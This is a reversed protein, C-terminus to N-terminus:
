NNSQNGNMFTVFQDPSRGPWNRQAPATPRVPEGEMWGGKFPAADTERESLDRNRRSGDRLGDIAHDVLAKAASRGAPASLM